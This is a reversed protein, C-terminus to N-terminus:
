ACFVGYLNVYERFEEGPKSSLTYVQVKVNYEEGRRLSGSTNCHKSVYVREYSKNSTLDTFDVYFHKPPNWGDLRIRHLETGTNTRVPDQKSAYEEYTQTANNAISRYMPTSMYGGIAGITLVTFLLICAIGIPLKFPLYDRLTVLPAYEWTQKGEAALMKMHKIHKFRGYISKILDEFDFACILGITFAPLLGMVFLNVGVSLIKQSLFIFYDM